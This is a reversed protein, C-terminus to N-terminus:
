NSTKLGSTAAWAANESHHRRLFRQASVPSIRASVDGHKQEATFSKLEAFNMYILGFLGLNFVQLVDWAAGVSSPTGILHFGVNTLISAFVGWYLMKWARIEHKNKNEPLRLRFSEFISSRDLRVSKNFTYFGILCLPAVTMLIDRILSFQRTATELSLWSQSAYSILGFGAILATAAYPVTKTSKGQIRFRNCIVYTGCLTFLVQGAFSVNFYFETPLKAVTQSAEVGCVMAIACSSIAAAVRIPHPKLTATFAGIIASTSAFIMMGVLFFSIMPVEGAIIAKLFGNGAALEVAMVISLCLALLILRGASYNNGSHVERM